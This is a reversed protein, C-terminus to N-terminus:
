ISLLTFALSVFTKSRGLLWIKVGLQVEKVVNKSNKRVFYEKSHVPRRQIRMVKSMVQGTVEITLVDMYKLPM